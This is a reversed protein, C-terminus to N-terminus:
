EDAVDEGEDDLSKSKKNKRKERELTERQNLIDDDLDKGKTKHMDLDKVLIKNNSDLEAFKRQSKKIDENTKSLEKQLSNQKETLSEVDKELTDLKRNLDRSDRELKKQLNKIIEKIKVLNKL